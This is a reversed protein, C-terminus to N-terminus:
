AFEAEVWRARMRYAHLLWSLAAQNAMLAHADCEPKGVRLPSVWGCTCYRRAVAQLRELEDPTACSTDESM